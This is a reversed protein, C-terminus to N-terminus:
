PVRFCLSHQQSTTRRLATSETLELAGDSLHQALDLNGAYRQCAAHWLIVQAKLWPYSVSSRRASSSRRPWCAIKYRAARLLSYIIEERARLYGADSNAARFFHAASEALPRASDPDGAANAKAARALFDLAQM